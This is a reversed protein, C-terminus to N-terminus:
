CGGVMDPLQGIASTDGSSLKDLLNRDNLALPTLPMNNHMLAVAKQVMNKPYYMSKWRTLELLIEDDSYENPHNKILYKALGRFSAAHSCGCLDRGQHDVVAPASCCFECSIKSGVNVYRQFEESTLSNTKITRDLRALSNLSNVPDDFSVTIENGYSPTGKPIIANIADQTIDGTPTYKMAIGDNTNITETKSLTGLSPKSGKGFSSIQYQNFIVLFTIIVILVIHLTELNSKQKKMKGKCLIYFNYIFSKNKILKQM